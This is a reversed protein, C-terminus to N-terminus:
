VRAAGLAALLLACIAADAAQQELGVSLHRHHRQCYGALGTLGNAALCADLENDAPITEGFMGSSIEIWAIRPDNDYRAAAAHVFDSWAQLYSASWYKPVIHSQGNVTCTVFGDPRQQMYWQPLWHGGCCLGDYSNFAIGTPKGLNAQALLWTDVSQWNYVGQTLNEIRNWQFVM